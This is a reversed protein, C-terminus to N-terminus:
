ELDSYITILDSIDKGIGGTRINNTPEQLDLIIERISKIKIGLVKMHELERRIKENLNGHVFLMEWDNSNAHPSFQNRAVANDEKFKRVVWSNVASKIEQENRDRTFSGNFKCLWGIPNHHVSVEVHILNAERNEEFKVGLLDMEKNNTSKLNKVTFYKKSILWEQVIDEALIM